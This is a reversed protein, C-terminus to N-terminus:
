IVVHYGRTFMCFSHFDVWKYHIKGNFITIKCLQTLKGSPLHTQWVAWWFGGDLLPHAPSKMAMM